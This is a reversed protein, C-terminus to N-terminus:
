QPYAGIPPHGNSGRDLGDADTIDTNLDDDDETSPETPVMFITTLGNGKGADKNVGLYFRLGNATEYKEKVSNIFAQLDDLSYWSSRNDGAGGQAKDNAEKRLNTWEDSLAKAETSTIIGNPLGNETQEM